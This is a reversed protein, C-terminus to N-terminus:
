SILIEWFRMYQGKERSQFLYFLAIYNHTVSESCHLIDCYHLLMPAPVVCTYSRSSNQIKYKEGFHIEEQM